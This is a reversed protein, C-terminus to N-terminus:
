SHKSCSPMKCEAAGALVALEVVKLLRWIHM